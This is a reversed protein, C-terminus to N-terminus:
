LKNLSTTVKKLRTELSPEESLLSEDTSNGETHMDEAMSTDTARQYPRHALCPILASTTQM